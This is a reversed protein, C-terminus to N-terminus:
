KRTMKEDDNEVFGGLHESGAIGLNLAQFRAFGDVVENRVGCKAQKTFTLLLSYSVM